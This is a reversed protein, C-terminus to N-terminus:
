EFVAYEGTQFTNQAPFDSPIPWEGDRRWIYEEIYAGINWKHHATEADHKGNYDDAWGTRRHGEIVYKYNGMDLTFVIHDAKYGTPTNYGDITVKGDSITIDVDAPVPVTAVAMTLGSYRHLNRYSGDPEKNTHSTGYYVTTFGTPAEGTKGDIISFAGLKPNCDVKVSVTEINVSLQRLMYGIHLWIKDPARDATGTSYIEVLELRVATTPNATYDDYDFAYCIWRGDIPHVNSLEVEPDGYTECSALICGIVFLKLIDKM